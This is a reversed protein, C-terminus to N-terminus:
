DYTTIDGIGIRSINGDIKEAEDFAIYTFIRYCEINQELLLDITLRMESAEKEAATKATTTSATVEATTTGAYTTTVEATITTTTVEETVPSTEAPTGTSCGSLLLAVCLTLATLAKTHKM